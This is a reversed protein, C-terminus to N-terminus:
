RVTKNTSPQRNRVKWEWLVATLAQSVDGAVFPYLTGPTLTSLRSPGRPLRAGPGGKQNARTSHSRPSKATETDRYSGLKPLLGLHADLLPPLLRRTHACEGEHPSKRDGELIVTLEAATPM